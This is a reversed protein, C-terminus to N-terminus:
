QTVYKVISKHWINYGKGNLHLGDSTLSSDMKDERLMPTYIDIFDMTHEVCYKKLQGNLSNISPLLAVYEMCTPTLSQIYIRTFPSHIQIYSLIAKYSKFVSDVSIGSQFDNVGIEIFIKKPHAKVINGIRNLVHITRNGGIGRNKIHRGFLETVPFGETLSNGVFVIDSSDVPMGSFISCRMEDWIDYSSRQLPQEPGSNHSYYYRKAAIFAIFSINIIASIIFAKKM